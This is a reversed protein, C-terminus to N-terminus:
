GRRTIYWMFAAYAVGAWAVSVLLWMAPSPRVYWLLGVLGFLVVGGIIALGDIGRM